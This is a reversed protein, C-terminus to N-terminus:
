KAGAAAPPEGTLSGLFAVIDAVQADSLPKGLQVKAMFKTVEELTKQSGDHLYPGTKAVNLLQPVKWMDKDADKQTAEFRGHDQTEVPMILGLKQSMQGGVLRTVHCTTCGVQMFAHLGRKEQDNLADTKGDLFDDFRSRTELKRLFAGLALGVNEATIPQDDKPFAAKFLDAYEPIGSLISVIEAEDKLGQENAVTMHMVSAQEVTDARYDWFQKFQRFADFTTPTNRKGEAGGTGPSTPKGDQGYSDLQHCSACAVDGNRSLRKEEYLKKGLSIKAPLLRNNVAPAAPDAGFLGKAATMLEADAATSKPAAAPPTAKEKAEAGTAPAGKTAAESKDDGCAALLLSCSIAVVRTVLSRNM